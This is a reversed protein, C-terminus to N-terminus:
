PMVYAYIRGARYTAERVRNGNNGSILIPNGSADFGSVVGVHGGGRRSMVAIAGVQPGSVRHGYSAFSNAMNSGTGRHGTRELVFNMFTACWLSRRDTPNGGLWRRAESIIDSGGGYSSSPSQSHRDDGSVSSAGVRAARDRRRSSAWHRHGGAAPAAVRHHLARAHHHNAPRAQAPTAVVSLTALLVMGAGGLM